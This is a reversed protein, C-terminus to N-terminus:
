SGAAGQSGTEYRVNLYIFVNAVILYAAPLALLFGWLAARTVSAVATELGFSGGLLLPLVFPLTIAAAVATAIVEYALVSRFHQQLLGRWTLLARIV